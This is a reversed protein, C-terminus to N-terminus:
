PQASRDRGFDGSSSSDLVTSRGVGTVALGEDFLGIDITEENSTSSKLGLKSGNDGSTSSVVLFVSHKNWKM